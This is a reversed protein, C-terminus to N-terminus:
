PSKNADVVCLRTWPWHHPLTCSAFYLSISLHIYLSPPLSLHSSGLIDSSYLCCASPCSEVQLRAQWEGVLFHRQTAHVALEFPAVSSKLLPCTPNTRTRTTQLRKCMYSHEDDTAVGRSNPHPQTHPRVTKKLTAFPASRRACSRWLQPWSSNLSPFGECRSLSKGCRPLICQKPPV